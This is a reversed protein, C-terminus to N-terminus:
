DRFLRAQRRAAADCGITRPWRTLKHPVAANRTRKTALATHRRLVAHYVATCPEWVVGSMGTRVQSERGGQGAHWRDRSWQTPVQLASRRPPGGDHRDGLHPSWRHDRPAAGELRRFLVRHTPPRPSQGACCHIPKLPPQRGADARPCSGRQAASSRLNGM